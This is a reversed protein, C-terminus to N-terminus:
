ISRNGNNQDTSATITVNANIPTTAGKFSSNLVTITEASSATICNAGSNVVEFTCNMFDANGGDISGIDIAHGSTTDLLCTFNCNKLVSGNVNGVDFFNVTEFDNGIFSVNEFKNSLGVVSTHYAGDSEFTGNYFNLGHVQGRLPISIV